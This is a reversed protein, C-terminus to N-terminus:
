LIIFFFILWISLKEFVKSSTFFHPNFSCSFILSFLKNLFNDFISCSFIRLFYLFKFSSGSFDKKSPSFTLKFSNFCSISFTSNFHPKSSNFCFKSFESIEFSNKPNVSDYISKFNSFDKEAESLSLIFNARSQSISDPKLKCAIQSHNIFLTKFGKFAFISLNFDPSKSSEVLVLSIGHNESICLEIASINSLNQNSNFTFSSSSFISFILKSFSEPSIVSKFETNVIILGSL